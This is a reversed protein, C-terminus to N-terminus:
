FVEPERKSVTAAGNAHKNVVKPDGSYRVEGAGSASADLQESADV